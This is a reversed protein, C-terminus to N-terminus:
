KKSTVPSITFNFSYTTDPAIEYYPRPRPGCSANGLGRYQCDLNLVTEARRIAPLDHGYKAQRLDADTYHLASFHIPSEPTIMIGEGTTPDVIKIYRADCRQGMSQARVYPEGMDDVAKKYHGVFAANKRDPANEFPGRGLWEVEELQPALFCELSLRPQKFNASTEFSADVNIKGNNYVTYNVTYPITDNGVIYTKTTNVAITNDANVVWNFSTLTEAPAIYERPDNDISRYTNLHFGNFGHIMEQNDYRLSMLQGNHKSFTATFGEGSIYLEQRNDEYARLFATSEPLEIKRVPVDATLAFQDAAVVHGAQAWVCDNKLHIEYTVFYEGEGAKVNEALPIELKIADGPNCSPLDKKGDKIAVGDCELRWTLYFRDLNYHTYRNEIVLTDTGEQMMKIYQYVKKVEQLKATIKRDPTVIGNICFNNDNPSDGFSGGYYYRDTSEGPKNLGQDVWDWICGGIMRESNNEIYDWYEELNGIANGMAHAYECLFFPKQNGNRDQAMMGEISPYMRSDIDAIENMGEYHIIRTPDLNRIADREAIVNRGGGSENGLSWFIISPHNRDRRAM